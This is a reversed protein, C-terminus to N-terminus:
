TSSELDAEVKAVKPAVWKNWAARILTNGLVGIVVGIIIGTLM